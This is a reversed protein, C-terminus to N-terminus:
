LSLLTIDLMKDFSDRAAVLKNDFQSNGIHIIEGVILDRLMRSIILQVKQDEILSNLLKNLIELIVPFGDDSIKDDVDNAPISLIKQVVLFHSLSFQVSVNAFAKIADKGSMGLLDVRLRQSLQNYFDAAVAGKIAMVDPFYNYIAQSRTGLLKSLRTFTLSEQNNIIQGAAAVIKEKSLTRSTM